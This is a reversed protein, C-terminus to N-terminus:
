PATSIQSFCPRCLFGQNRELHAMWPDECPGQHPHEDLRHCPAFEQQGCRTCQVPSHRTMLNSAALHQLETVRGTGLCMPCVHGIRDRVAERIFESTNPMRRLAEALEPEVKFTMVVNRREAM